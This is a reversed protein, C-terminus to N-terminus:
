EKRQLSRASALEGGPPEAPPSCDPQDKSRWDLLLPRLIRHRQLRLSSRRLAPLRPHKAPISPEFRFLVLPTGSDENAIAARYGVYYLIAGNHGNERLSVTMEREYDFM